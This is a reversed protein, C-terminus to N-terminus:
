ELELRAIRQVLDILAAEDRDDKYFLRMVEFALTPIKVEDVKVGVDKFEVPQPQEVIKAEEPQPAPPTTLTRLQEARPMAGNLTRISHMTATMLTYAQNSLNSGNLFRSVMTQASEPSSMLLPPNQNNFYWAYRWVDAQTLDYERMMSVLENRLDHSYQALVSRSLKTTEVTMVEKPKPLINANRLDNVARNLWNSHSPTDSFSLPMGNEARVIEGDSRYINWHGKNDKRTDFGAKHIERRLESVNDAM